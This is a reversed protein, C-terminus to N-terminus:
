SDTLDIDTLRISGSNRAKIWGLKVLAKRNCRITRPDTGIEMMIAKTLQQNSIKVADKHEARIRWMVRELKEVSM